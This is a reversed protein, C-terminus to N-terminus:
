DEEDFQFVVSIRGGSVRLRPKEALSLYYRDALYSFDRELMHIFEESDEKAIRLGRHDKTLDVSRGGRSRGNRVMRAYAHREPRIQGAIIRHATRESIDLGCSRAAQVLERADSAVRFRDLVPLSTIDEILVMQSATLTPRIRNRITAVIDAPSGLYVECTEREALAFECCTRIINHPGREVIRNGEEDQGLTPWTSQDRKEPLSRTDCVVRLSTGGGNVSDIVRAESANRSISFLAMGRGHVGWTDEHFTELKSTVRAEFVREWMQHPIGFGDDLMTITRNAEDRSSAVFIHQAGADRANRLMEIVVDEVSRIDQAAQRREAESVRLRVFGQGLSEEVKLAKDGGMRSVFSTLDETPM